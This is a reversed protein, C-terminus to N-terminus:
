RWPLLKKGRLGLLGVILGLYILPELEWVKQVMVFHIAGLLVAVYALRHLAQWSAAGIKKISKDNSTIALPIMLVFAVMGITIYPRKIIDAWIEGWLLQLDLFIWVALHLAVYFFCILGLPRRFKIINCGLYRRMPTVALSAIFVQLSWLGLQHEIAKVPDVGLQGQVTAWALWFVPLLSLLYLPWTPTKRATMNVVEVLSM